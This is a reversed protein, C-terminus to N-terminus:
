LYLQTDMSLSCLRSLAVKCCRTNCNDSM